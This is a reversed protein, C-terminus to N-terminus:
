HTDNTKESTEKLMSLGKDFMENMAKDTMFIGAIANFPFGIHADMGWAVDTKVSDGTVKFYSTPKTGQGLDMDYDIRENDRISKITQSGKGVEKHESEWSMKAGVTGDMGSISTKMKPDLQQWQSWKKHNEFMVINNWVRDKPANITTKREFHFDKKMVAGAVLVIVVVLVVLFGIFKLIKM